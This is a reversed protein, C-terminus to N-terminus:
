TQEQALVKDRFARRKDHKEREIDGRVGSGLQEMYWAVDSRPDYDDSTYRDIISEVFERIEDGIARKRASAESARRHWGWFEDDGFPPREAEGNSDQNAM